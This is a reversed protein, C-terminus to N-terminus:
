RLGAEEEIERKRERSLKVCNSDDLAGALAYLLMRHPRTVGRAVLERCAAAAGAARLDEASHIGIETLWAACRPGLNKLETVPTL